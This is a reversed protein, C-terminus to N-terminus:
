SKQKIKSKLALAAKSLATETMSDTMQPIAKDKTLASFSTIDSKNQMQQGIGKFNRSYNQQTLPRGSVNNSEWKTSEDISVIGTQKFPNQVKPM